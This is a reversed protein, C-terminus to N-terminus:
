ANNSEKTIENDQSSFYFIDKQIKLYSSANDQQLADLKNKHFSKISDNTALGGFNHIRIFGDTDRMPVVASKASRSASFPVDLLGREFSKVIGKILNDSELVVNIQARVERCILDIEEDIRASEPLLCDLISSRGAAANAIGDANAYATPVGYAEQYSKSIMKAAGGRKAVLSGLLILADANARDRPFVGMFEHFVPFVSCEKPLYEAALKRLSRLASIDQIPHGSQCIAPSLSVVGQEAALMGELLACAISISPPMLVGTMTGFLERDIIVDKKALSGCMADVEQWYNLSDELKVDKCYPINYGLGGGEYSTFGAAVATEFLLRGDPSGHRIEIPVKANAVLERGRQWGHNILPYGNLNAPSDAMIQGVKDLRLLRTHADITLSLMDPHSRNALIRHLDLMEEHMGVGCRPQILMRGEAAAASLVKFANPQIKLNEIVETECPVEMANNRCYEPLLNFM